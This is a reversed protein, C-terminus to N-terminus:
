DQLITKGREHLVQGHADFSLRLLARLRQAVDAGPREAPVQGPHAERLRRVIDAYRRSARVSRCGM